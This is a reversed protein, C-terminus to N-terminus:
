MGEDGSLSTAWGNRMISAQSAHPTLLNQRIEAVVFDPLLECGAPNVPAVVTGGVKTTGKWMGDADELTGGGSPVKMKLLNEYRRRAKQKATSAGLENISTVPAGGTVSTQKSLLDKEGPLPLVKPQGRNRCFAAVPCVGCPTQTFGIDYLNPYIYVTKGEEDKSKGNSIATLSTRYVWYREPGAPGPRRHQRNVTSRGNQRSALPPPLWDEDASQEALREAEDSEEDSERKPRRRKADSDSDGEQSDEDIAESDSRQRRRKAPRGGNKYAPKRKRVTESTYPGEDHDDYSVEDDEDYRRAWLREIEGDWVLVNLIAEIHEIDLEVGQLVDKEILYQLIDNATPLYPVHSQPWLLEPRGEPFSQLYFSIDLLAGRILLRPWTCVKNRIYQKALSQLAGIFETDLENGAYWPGGTVDLSPTVSALM